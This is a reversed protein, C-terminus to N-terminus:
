TGGRAPDMRRLQAEFALCRSWLADAELRARDRERRAARAEELLETGRAQLETVRDNARAAEAILGCVIEWTAEDWPGPLASEKLAEAILTDIPSPPGSSPSWAEGDGRALVDALIEEAEAPLRPPPPIAPMRPQIASRRNALPAESRVARRRNDAAVDDM